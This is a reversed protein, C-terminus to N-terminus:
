SLLFDEYKGELESFYRIIKGDNFACCIIDKLYLSHWGSAYQTKTILRIGFHDEVYNKLHEKYRLWDNNPLIDQRHNIAWTFFQGTNYFYEINNALSRSDWHISELRNLALEHEQSMAFWQFFDYVTEIEVPCHQVINEYNKFNPEKLFLSTYHERLAAAGFKAIFSNIKMTGYLQDAGNGHVIIHDKAIEEIPKNAPIFNYKHCFRDFLKPNELASMPTTAISINKLLNKTGHKEIAAIIGSSDLGGSWYIVPPKPCTELDLVALEMCDEFTNKIYHPEIRQLIPSNKITAAFPNPEVPITSVYEVFELPWSLQRNHKKYLMFICNHNIFTLKMNDIM